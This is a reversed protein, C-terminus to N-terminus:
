KEMVSINNRIRMEFMETKYNFRWIKSHHNMCKEYYTVQKEYEKENLIRKVLFLLTEFWYKRYDYETDYIWNEQEEIHSKMRTLGNITEIGDDIECYHWEKKHKDQFGKMDETVYAYSIKGACRAVLANKAEEYSYGSYILSVEGRDGESVSYFGSNSIYGKAGNWPEKAMTTRELVDFFLQRPIESIDSISSFSMKIDTVLEEWKHMEDRNMEYYLYDRATM